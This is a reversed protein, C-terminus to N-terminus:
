KETGTELKLILVSLRRGGSRAHDGHLMFEHNIARDHHVWTALPNMMIPSDIM